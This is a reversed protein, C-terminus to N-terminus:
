GPPRALRILYRAPVWGLRGKPDIVELWRLGSAVEEEGSLIMLTGDRWAAIKGGDFGPLVYMWVGDGDTGGVQALAPTPTFTPTPTSTPTHTPTHTPTPTPTSSSTPTPTLTATATPTSAPVRTRTPTATPTPTPTATPTASAGPLPTLTPTPPVFSDLRQTPIVSLLLAVPRGLDVALREQLDVVQSHGVNWQSRVWIQLRLTDGDMETSLMEWDQLEVDRITELELLIAEDIRRVLAAQSLTRFTLVGLPITIAVLLLVTGIVGRQFLRAREQQGPIPRFGLWLFVASGAAVIAVLNVLFLLLAGFAIRAGSVEGGAGALWIGLGIGAVSLPPVLAAAIAVGPLSASVGKRCLAYAGAAGSALAVGLDLLNPQIRSLVESPVDIAPVLLFVLFGIIGGISVALLMGRVTASAALRLLRLDGRVVSLSLGFFAAMLPAVLMAGIIVAPSDLLLGFTAIAASLAIMLFFDIDPEAGERIERYVARQEQSVLSPLFDFLRFGARRLMTGVRQRRTHRKVVIAPVPCYAAVSQPINGFLVRDLYSEHSAGVMVLDYGESAERLIGKTPTSSSVVKAEIRPDGAWPQLIQYL